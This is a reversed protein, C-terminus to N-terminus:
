GKRLLTAQELPRGGINLVVRAEAQFPLQQGAVVMLVDESQLLNMLGDMGDETQEYDFVRPKGRETVTFAYIKTSLTQPDYTDTRGFVLNHTRLRVKLGHM